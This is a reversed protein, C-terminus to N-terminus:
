TTTVTAKRTSPSPDDAAEKNKYADYETRKESSMRLAFQAFDRLMRAENDVGARFSKSAQELLWDAAEEWGTSIGLLHGRTEAISEPTEKSV